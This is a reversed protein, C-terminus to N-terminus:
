AHAGMARYEDDAGPSLLVWITYIGLATGLPIHILALFGLVLTLIRAWSERQLLGWGAAIGIVSKAILFAGVATLLPHLFLPGGGPGMHLFLTNALIVVAVGGLLTIASYAIWFIGLLQLNRQLRSTQM